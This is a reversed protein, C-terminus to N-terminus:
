LIGELILMYDKITEFEQFFKVRDISHFTKYIDTEKVTNMEIRNLHFRIIWIEEIGNPVLYNQLENPEKYIFEYKKYSSHYDFWEQAKKECVVLIFIKNLNNELRHILSTQSSVKKDMSAIKSTLMKNNDRCERLEQKYQKITKKNERVKEEANNIQKKIQKTEEQCLDKNQRLKSIEAELKKIIERQMQVTDSDSDGNNESGQTTSNAEEGITECLQEKLVDIRNNSILELIVKQTDHYKLKENLMETSIDTPFTWLNDLQRQQVQKEAYKMANYFFSDVNKLLTNILLKRKIPSNNRGKRFGRVQYKGIDIIEELTNTSLKEVVNEALEKIDM